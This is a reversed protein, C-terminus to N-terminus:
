LPKQYLDAMIAPVKSFDIKNSALLNGITATPQGRFVDMILLSPHSIDLGFREREKRFYPIIIDQLFRLSQEKNGIHKPNVSLSFEKPFDVRSIGRDAKAAYILQVALFQADFTITFTGTIM